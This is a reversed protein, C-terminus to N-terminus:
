YRLGGRQQELYRLLGHFYSNAVDLIRASVAQNKYLADRRALRRAEDLNDQFITEGYVLPAHVDRCLNLNRAYVGRQGTYLSQRLLYDRQTNEPEVSGLRADYEEVTLKALAVSEEIQGSMLKYLFLLRREPRQLDSGVFSGPVFVMNSNETTPPSFGQADRRSKEDVNFHIVVVAHPRFENIMRARNSFDRFKFYNHFLVEDSARRLEAAKGASLQGAKVEAQLQGEMQERRWQGFTSGYSSHGQEGRTLLVEAGQERLQDALILAVELAMNGESLQIEGGAWSKDRLKMYRYELQNQALEGGLHGPDIAVRVGSLPLPGVGLLGGALPRPLGEGTAHRRCVSLVSDWPQTQVLWAFADRQGYPLFFEAEGKAKQARSAYLAVGKPGIQVYDAVTADRLLYRKLKTQYYGALEAGQPQVSTLETQALGCVPSLWLLLAVLAPGSPWKMKKYM